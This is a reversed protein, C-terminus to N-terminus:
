AAKAITAGASLAEASEAAPRLCHRAIWAIVPVCVADGFGFLAQNETVDALEYGDAGQLRAYERPTMWRVRWQGRSAEVLAQRSSGGRPTRLCGSLADPRIEWMARGRRTRRYATAWVKRRSQQMTELRGAQIPSLSQQFRAMREGEWWRPDMPRLREVVSHLTEQTPVPVPTAMDCWSLDSNRGMFDLLWKPRLPSPTLAEDNGPEASRTSGVVFLRPRSQPVFWSADMLFVDCVYGLRNLERLADALDGGGRSTAFSPVNELLIVPPRRDDMEDLIRAFEWFMSSESGDLGARNGALSLDTCPFSATAIHIDPLDSGCIDRVDALVFHEDPHNASYLRQKVPEIDNAFVVDVGAQELATRVLGIGAFFEAARLRPATPSQISAPSISEM